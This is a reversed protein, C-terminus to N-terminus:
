AGGLVKNYTERQNDWSYEDRLELARAKARAYFEPDTAFRDIAAALAVHDARYYSVRQKCVFSGELSAPVLWEKPLWTNNPSIDPMIVPMGAGLAENVPLCLGGFRRPMVLVDGTNYNDWYNDVDGPDVILTVNPKTTLGPVLSSVYGGQQCRITVTVESKIYELSRLLLETGNRDHIAPRGVIHLFNTATESQPHSVASAGLFRDTAIPVPLLTKPGPITGWMWTTPPVWLDPDDRRNLFEANPQLVTRVGMRRALPALEAAYFTEASFVVDLDDLWDRLTRRDPVWGKVVTAGPYRSLDTRKNTHNEQDHLHGVDIVLVREPRM